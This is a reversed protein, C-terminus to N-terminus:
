GRRVFSKIAAITEIKNEILSMHGESLQVLHTDTGEAQLLLSGLNLVPDKKGLIIMKKFHSSRLVEVNDRRMKMGELAAIVGQKSTKLAENKVKSIAESFVIRNKSRFLLPVATRIFSTHNKKVVSIARDRNQQKELSDAFATSNLLCLGKVKNSFSATFALAVYGGMSHGVLISKRLKLTKLVEAVAESMQEMTHVYGLNESKGHGLLDICVVRNRKSLEEALDDWMSVNELFGHLLIVAAGKGQDTYHIRTNKYDLFISKKEM